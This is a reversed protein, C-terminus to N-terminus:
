GPEESDSSNDHSSQVKEDIEWRFPIARKDGSQKRFREPLDGEFHNGRLDLLDPTSRTDLIDHVLGSFQNNSLDLKKIQKMNKLLEWPLTGSFGNNSLDLGEISEYPCPRLSLARYNESIDNSFPHATLVTNFSRYVRRYKAIKRPDLQLFIHELVEIPLDNM